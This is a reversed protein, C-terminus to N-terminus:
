VPCSFRENLCLKLRYLITQGFTKRQELSIQISKFLLFIIHFIMKILLDRWHLWVSKSRRVCMCYKYYYWNLYLASKKNSVTILFFWISPSWDSPMPRSGNSYWNLKYWSLLLGKALLWLMCIGDISFLAATFSKSM